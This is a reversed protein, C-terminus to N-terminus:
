MKLASVLVIEGIIQDYYIGKDKRIYPIGVICKSKVNLSLELALLNPIVNSQLAIYEDEAIALADRSNYVCFFMEKSKEYFNLAPKSKTLNNGINSSYAFAGTTPFSPVYITYDFEKEKGSTKRQELIKEILQNNNFINDDPSFVGKRFIFPLYLEKGKISIDLNFSWFPLFLEPQFELHIIPKAFKVEVIKLEEGTFELGVGCNDCFHVMDSSASKIPAGCKPCELPLLKFSKV